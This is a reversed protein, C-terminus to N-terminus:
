FEDESVGINEDEDDYEVDEYGLDDEDLDEELEDEEDVLTMVLAYPIYCQKQNSSAIGKEKDTKSSSARKAGAGRTSYSPEEVGMAQNVVNWSLDDDGWVLDDNDSSDGDMRGILWENSDDIEDLLIPDRTVCVSRLSRRKLTRNYKVFVMNNLWHQALRNRKKTHLLQFDSCNRECGTASCTMSLIKVAFSRLNPASSGYCSWWEAPAKIDKQRIAMDHGFIGTADKFADLETMIKDQTKTDPVLLGGEVEACHVDDHYKYHISPNLFYGAAHLPHHLQCQWRKDIIEFAKEYKEKNWNLDRAITEKASDMAAYIYGMAPKKEGNKEGDVMRLVKVLPTMLKLARRINNWFSAQMLYQRVKRAGAEKPWKSESWEASNVMDRLPKQQKLFQTMTICDKANMRSDRRGEDAQTQNVGKECTTSM